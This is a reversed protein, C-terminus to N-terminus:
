RLEGVRGRMRRRQSSRLIRVWVMEEGTIVEVPKTKGGEAEEGDGCFGGVVGCWELGRWFNRDM